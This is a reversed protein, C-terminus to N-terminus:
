ELSSLYRMLFEKTTTKVVGIFRFGVGMLTEAKTVSAFYSDTCIGRGIQAWPLVLYKLVSTGHHINDPGEVTRLDETEIHKM